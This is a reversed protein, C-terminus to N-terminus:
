AIQRRQSIEEAFTSGPRQISDLEVSADGAAGALDGVEKTLFRIQDRLAGLEARLSTFEITTNQTGEILGDLAPVLIPIYPDPSGDGPKPLTPNTPVGTGPPDVLKDVAGRFKEIIPDWQKFFDDNAKQTDIGFKDLIKAIAEEGKWTQDGAWKSWKVGTEDNISFGQQVVQDIYQMYRDYWQQAEEKTKATSIRKLADDAKGQYFSAIRESDPTYDEKVMGMVAYRDRADAGQQRIRDQMQLIAKMEERERQRIEIATAGLEQLLNIQDAGVLDDLYGAKQILGDMATKMSDAFTMDMEKRVDLLGTFWSTNKGQMNKAGFFQGATQIDKLGLALNQLMQQMKAPDLKEWDRELQDFRSGTLGLGQFGARVQTRAQGYVAADIRGSSIYENLHKGWNASPNDQFKGNIAGFTGATPQVGLAMMLRVNANRATDYREQLQSEIQARELPNINKPAQLSAKGYMDFMPSGYKYEDQRAKEGLAGGIAAVVAAAAAAYINGTSAYMSAAASVVSGTRSGEGARGAGYSSVGIAAYDMGLQAQNARKQAANVADIENDYTKGGGFIGSGRYGIVKGDKDKVESIKGGLIESFIRDFGAQTQEAIRRGAIDGFNEGGTLAFDTAFDSAFNRFTQVAAHMKDVARAYLEASKEGKSFAADMAISLQRLSEDTAAQGNALWWQSGTTATTGRAAGAIDGLSTGRTILDGFAKDIGAQRVLDARVRALGQLEKTSERSAAAMDRLYAVEADRFPDASRLSEIEFRLAEGRKMIAEAVKAEADAEKKAKEAAEEREKALRQRTAYDNGWATMPDPAAPGFPLKATPIKASGTLGAGLVSGSASIGGYVGGTAVAGLIWPANQAAALGVDFFTKKSRDGWKEVAAAQKDWWKLTDESSFLVVAKKGIDYMEKVVAVVVGAKVAVSGYKGAMDELTDNIGKYSMGAVNMEKRHDETVKNLSIVERKLHEVRDTVKKYHAVVEPTAAEISGYTRVIERRLLEQQQALRDASNIAIKDGREIKNVLQAHAKAVNDAAREFDASVGTIRVKLESDAM